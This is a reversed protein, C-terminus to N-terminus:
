FKSLYFVPDPDDELRGYTPFTLKLYKVQDTKPVPQFGTSTPNVVLQSSTAQLLPLASTHSTELENKKWHMEM